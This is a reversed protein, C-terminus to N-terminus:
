NDDKSDQPVASLLVSSFFKLEIIFDKISINHRFSTAIIPTSSDLSTHKKSASDPLDKQEVLIM